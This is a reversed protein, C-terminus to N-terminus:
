CYYKEDFYKVPVKGSITIYGKQKLEKNLQQMVKYAKAEKVGLLEMVDIVNYFRKKSLTQM